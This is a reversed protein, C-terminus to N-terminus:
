ICINFGSVEPPPGIYGPHIDYDDMNIQKDPTTKSKPNGRRNNSVSKTIDKLVKEDVEDFYNKEEVIQRGSIFM